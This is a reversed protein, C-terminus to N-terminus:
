AKLAPATLERWNDKFVFFNLGDVGAERVSQATEAM